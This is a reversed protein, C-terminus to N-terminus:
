PKRGKESQTLSQQCEYCIARASVPFYRAYSAVRGNAVVVPSAFGSSSHGTTQLGLVVFTTVSGKTACSTGKAQGIDESVRLSARQFTIQGCAVCLLVVYLRVWCSQPTSVHRVSSRPKDPNFTMESAEGARRVRSRSFPKLRALDVGLRVWIVEQGLVHGFENQSSRHRRRRTPGIHRRPAIMWASQTCSGDEPADRRRPTARM